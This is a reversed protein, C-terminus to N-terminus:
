RGTAASPASVSTAAAPRARATAWWTSSTGPWGGTAPTATVPMPDASPVVPTGSALLLCDTDAAAAAVTARLAVLQDRLAGASATPVTCTEIMSPYMEAQVQEGLLPEALAIVQPARPAPARSRRDVLFFEEEVGMTHVRADGAPAEDGASLIGPGEASRPPPLGTPPVPTGASSPPRM